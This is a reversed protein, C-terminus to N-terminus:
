ICFLVFLSHRWVEINTRGKSVGMIFNCVERIFEDFPEANIWSAELQPPDTISSSPGHGTSTGTARLSSSDGINFGNPRGSTTSKPSRAAASETMASHEPDIFRRRPVSRSANEDEDESYTDYYVAEPYDRLYASTTTTM